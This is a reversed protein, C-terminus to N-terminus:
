GAHRRLFNREEIEIEEQKRKLFDESSTPVSAFKGVAAKLLEIRDAQTLKKVTRRKKITKIM